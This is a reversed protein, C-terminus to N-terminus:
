VILVPCPQEHFIRDISRSARLHRTHDRGQHGVVLLDFGHSRVHSVLAELPDNKEVTLTALAVGHENAIDKYRALAQTVGMREALREVERDEMAEVHPHSAIVSMTVVEGHTAEALELAVRLAHQSFESGDFGVLIRRFV